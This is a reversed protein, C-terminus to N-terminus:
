LIVEGVSTAAAGGAMVASGMLNSDVHIHIWTGVGAIERNKKM